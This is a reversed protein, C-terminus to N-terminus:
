KAIIKIQNNLLSKHSLLLRTCDLNSSELIPYVHFQNAVALANEYISYGHPPSPHLLLRKPNQSRKPETVPRLPCAGEGFGRWFVLFGREAHSCYKKLRELRDSSGLLTGSCGITTLNAKATAQPTPLWGTAKAKRGLAPLYHIEPKFLVHHAEGGSVASRSKPM